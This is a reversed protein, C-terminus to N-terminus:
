NTEKLSNKFAMDDIKKFEEHCDKECEEVLKVVNEDIELKDFM